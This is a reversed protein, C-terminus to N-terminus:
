FAIGISLGGRYWPYQLKKAEVIVQNNSKTVTLWNKIFFPLDSITKKFDAEILGADNNNNSITIMKGNALGGELGLFYLDLTVRKSILFQVGLQIGLNFTNIQGTLDGKYKSNQANTGEYTAEGNIQQYKLYPEIYLGKPLMKDGYYYRYAARLHFTSFAAKTIDSNNNILSKSIMQGQIPIGFGFTLSNNPDIMREYEFSISQFPLDMPLFKVVNKRFTISDQEQEQGFGVFVNTILAIILLLRKMM